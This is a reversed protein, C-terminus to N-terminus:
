QNKVILEKEKITKNILSTLFEADHEIYRHGGKREITKHRDITVKQWGTIQSLSVRDDETGRISIIPIDFPEVPDYSYNTLL